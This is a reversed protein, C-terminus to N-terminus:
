LGGWHHCTLVAAPGAGEARGGEEGWSQLSQGRQSGQEEWARWAGVKSRQGERRGCGEEMYERPEKGGRRRM